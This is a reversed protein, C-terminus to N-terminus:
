NKYASKDFDRKEGISAKSSCDINLFTIPAYTIHIHLRHSLGRTMSLYFSKWLLDKDSHMLIM